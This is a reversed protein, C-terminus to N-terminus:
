RAVTSNLQIVRDHLFMSLDVNYARKSSQNRGYYHYMIHVEPYSLASRSYMKFYVRKSEYKCLKMHLIQDIGLGIFTM